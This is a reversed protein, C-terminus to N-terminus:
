YPVQVVASKPVEPPADVPVGSGSLRIARTAFGSLRVDARQEFPGRAGRVVVGMANHFWLVPQAAVAGARFGDPEVERVDDLIMAPRVGAEKRRLHINRLALGGAHRVFFAYAPLKGFMAAEPYKGPNEPVDLGGVQKGGGKRSVNIGDLSVSRVPHGSLGTISNALTAGTAVVNSISLTGFCEPRPLRCGGGATESGSSFRRACM